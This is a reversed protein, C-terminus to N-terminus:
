INKVLFVFLCTCIFLGLVIIGIGCGLPCKARDTVGWHRSVCMSFKLRCASSSHVLGKLRLMKAVHLSVVDLVISKTNEKLIGKWACIRQQFLM